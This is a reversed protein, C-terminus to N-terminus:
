CWGSRDLAAPFPVQWVVVVNRNMKWRVTGSGAAPARVATAAQLVAMKEVLDQLALKQAILAGEAELATARAEVASGAAWETGSPAPPLVKLLFCFASEFPRALINFTNKLCRKDVM